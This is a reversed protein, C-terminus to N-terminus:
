AAADRISRASRELLEREKPSMDPMLVQEVGNRGVISPLSLTTGCDQHFSGIPIVSRENRLVM